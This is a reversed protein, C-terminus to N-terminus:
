QDSLQAHKYTSKLWAWVSRNDTLDKEGEAIWEPIKATIVKVYSEDEALLSCKM